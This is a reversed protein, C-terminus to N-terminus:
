SMCDHAHEQRLGGCVQPNMAIHVALRTTVVSLESAGVNEAHIGKVFPMSRCSFYLMAYCSQRCHAPQAM